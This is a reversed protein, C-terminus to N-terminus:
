GGFFFNSLLWCSQLWEAAHQLKSKLCQEQIRSAGRSVATLTRTFFPKDGRAVMRRADDRIASKGERWLFSKSSQMSLWHLYLLHVHWKTINYLMWYKMERSQIMQSDVSRSCALLIEYLSVPLIVGATKKSLREWFRSGWAKCWPLKM